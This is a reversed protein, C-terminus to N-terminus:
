SMEFALGRNEDPELYQEVKRPQPSHSTRYEM